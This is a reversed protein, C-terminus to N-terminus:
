EGFLADPPIRPQHGDPCQPGLDNFFCDWAGLLDRYRRTEEAYGDHQLGRPDSQCRETAKHIRPKNKIRNGEIRNRHSHNGGDYRLLRFDGKGPLTAMLIISFIM